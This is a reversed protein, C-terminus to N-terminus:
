SAPSRTRRTGARRRARARRRRGRRDLQARRAASHRLVGELNLDEREGAALVWTAAVNGALGVLGLALMGAGAVDPPIASAAVAGRGRDARRDRGAAARRERARRAGRQAAPRLHAGADAGRRGAARGRARDRDRGRGLALHGADALLALSDTLIGGVVTASSCCSTSRSRSRWARGTARRPARGATRTVTRTARRAMPRCAVGGRPPRVAELRRVKSRRQAPPRRRRRTARRRRSSATRPREDAGARGRGERVAAAGRVRGGAHARHRAAPDPGHGRLDPLDERGPVVERAPLGDVAGRPGVLDM